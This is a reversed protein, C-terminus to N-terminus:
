LCDQTAERLHLVVRLSRLDLERVVPFLVELILPTQRRDSRVPGPRYQLQLTSDARRRAAALRDAEDIRPDILCVRQEAALRQM